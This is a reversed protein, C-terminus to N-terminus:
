VHTNLRPINYNSTNSARHPICTNFAQKICTVIDCSFSDFDLKVSEYSDSVSIRDFYKINVLLYDLTDYYQQLFSHDCLHWQSIKVNINADNNVPLLCVRSTECQLQFVLPRHDSAIDDYLINAGEILPDILFSSFIHDIWSSKSGDDSIYPFV